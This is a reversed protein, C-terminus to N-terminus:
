HLNIKIGSPKMPVFVRGSPEPLSCEPLEDTSKRGMDYSTCLLTVNDKVQPAGGMEVGYPLNPNHAESIALFSMEQHNQTEITGQYSLDEALVLDMQQHEIFWTMGVLYSTRDIITLFRPGEALKGDPDEIKGQFSYQIAGSASRRCVPNMSVANKLWVGESEQQQCVPDNGDTPDPTPAVNGTPMPANNPESITAISTNSVDGVGGGLGEHTAGSPSSSALCAGLGLPILLLPLWLIVKSAKPTM